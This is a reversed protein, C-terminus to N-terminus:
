KLDGGLGGWKELGIYLMNRHESDKLSRKLKRYDDIYGEPNISSSVENMVRQAIAATGGIMRVVLLYELKADLLVEEYHDTILRDINPLIEKFCVRVAPEIPVTYFMSEALIIHTLFYIKRNVELDEISMGMNILEQISSLGKVGLIKESLRLTNIAYTSLYKIAERDQSLERLVTQSVRSYDPELGFLRSGFIGRVLYQEYLLIKEYKKAYEQRKGSLEDIIRRISIAINKYYRDSFGANFYEDFDELKFKRDEFLMARVMYHYKKEGLFSRKAYYLKSIADALKTM